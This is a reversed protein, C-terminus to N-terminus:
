CVRFFFLSTSITGKIRGVTLPDYVVDVTVSRGGTIKLVIGDIVCFDAPLLLDAGEM